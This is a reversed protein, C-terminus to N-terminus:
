KYPYPKDKPFPKKSKYLNANIIKKLLQKATVNNADNKHLSIGIQITGRDAEHDYRRMGPHSGTVKPIKEAYKDSWYQELGAGDLLDSDSFGCSKGVFGYHINSWIDFYYLDNKYLHWHQLDPDRPHFMKPIIVKHDWCGGQRVNGAWAVIAAKPAVWAKKSCNRIETLSMLRVYWHTKYQAECQETSFNNLDHIKKVEASKSNVNIEKAMYDAIPTIEDINRPKSVKLSVNVQKKIPPTFRIKKNAEVKLANKKESM